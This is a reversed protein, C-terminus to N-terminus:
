KKCWNFNAIAYDKDFDNCTQRAADELIAIHNKINEIMIRREHHPRNWMKKNDNPIRPILRYHQVINKMEQRTIEAMQADYDSVFPFTQVIQTYMPM